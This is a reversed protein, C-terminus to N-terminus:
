SKSTTITILKRIEENQGANLGACETEPACMPCLVQIFHIEQNGLMRLPM